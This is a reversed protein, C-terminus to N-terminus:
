RSRLWPPSLVPARGPCTPVKVRLVTSDHPAYARDDVHDGHDGPRHDTDDEPVPKGLAEPQGDELGDPQEGQDDPGLLRDGSAVHDEGEHGQDEAGGDALGQADLVPQLAQALHDAVAEGPVTM